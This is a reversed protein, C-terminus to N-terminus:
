CSLQGLEMPFLGKRSSGIGFLQVIRSTCYVQNLHKPSTERRKHATLCWPHHIAPARSYTDGLAGGRTRWPEKKGHSNVWPPGASRGHRYKRGSFSNASESPPQVMPISGQGKPDDPGVGYWQALTAERRWTRTGSPFHGM